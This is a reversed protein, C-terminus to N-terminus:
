DIGCGFPYSRFCCRQFPTNNENKASQIIIRRLYPLSVDPPESWRNIVSHDQKGPHPEVGGAEAEFFRADQPIKQNKCQLNQIEQM